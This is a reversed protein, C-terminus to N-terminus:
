SESPGPVASCFMVGTHAEFCELYTHGRRDYRFVQPLGSRSVTQRSLVSPIPQVLCVLILVLGVLCICLWLELRAFWKKKKKRRLARLTSDKETEKKENTHSKKALIFSPEPLGWPAAWQGVYRLGGDM